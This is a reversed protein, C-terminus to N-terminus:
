RCFYIQSSGFLIGAMQSSFGPVVGGTEAGPILLNLKMICTYRLYAKPM